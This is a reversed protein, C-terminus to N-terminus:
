RIFKFGSFSLYYKIKSYSQTVRFGLKLLSSSTRGNTASTTEGPLGAKVCPTTDNEQYFNGVIYHKNRNELKNSCYTTVRRFENYM